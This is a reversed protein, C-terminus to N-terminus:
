RKEVRRKVFSAKRVPAAPEPGPQSPGTGDAGCIRYPGKHHAQSLLGEECLHKFVQRVRPIPIRTARSADKVVASGRREVHRWLVKLDRDAFDRAAADTSEACSEDRAPAMPTPPLSGQAAASPTAGSAGAGSGTAPPTAVTAATAAATAAAIAKGYDEFGRFRVKLSHASSALTGVRVSVDGGAVELNARDEGSAVRFFPPEYAEPTVGDFYLLKLALWRDPPLEGLTSSFDILKHILRIAQQRMAERTVESGNLTHRSASPYAVAFTWQELPVDEGGDEGDGRGQAAPGPPRSAGLVLTLSRLYRKELADFVGSELWQCLAYATPHKGGQIHHVRVGFGTKTEFADEPFLSRHWCISSLSIRLLNKVLTLSETASVSKQALATSSRGAM